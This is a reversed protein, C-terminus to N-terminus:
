DIHLVDRGYDDTSIFFIVNTLAWFDEKSRTGLSDLKESGEHLMPLGTLILKTIGIEVLSTSGTVQQVCM